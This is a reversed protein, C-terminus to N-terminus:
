PSEGNCGPPAVQHAAEQRNQKMRGGERLWLSIQHLSEKRGEKRYKRVKSKPDKEREGAHQPAGGGWLYHIWLLLILEEPPKL